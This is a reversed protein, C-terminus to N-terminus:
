VAGRLGAERDAPEGGGEGSEEVQSCESQISSEGSKSIPFVHLKFVSLSVHVLETLVVNVFSFPM